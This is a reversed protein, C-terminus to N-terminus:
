RGSPTTISRRYSLLLASGHIVLGIAPGGCLAISTRLGVPADITLLGIVAVTAVVWGAMFVRHSGVALVAYGSLTLMAMVGAAVVLGAFLLGSPYFGAGYVVRLLAPGIGFALTAAVTTVVAVLILISGLRRAIRERHEVFHTIAVGQYANLTLLLPARTVVVVALVVSANAGLPDTSTLKLLIPFGAVLLASCGTALMANVSGRLFAFVSVSVPGILASGAGKWIVLGIWAFGGCALAWAQLARSGDLLVVALVCCFRVVGEVLILASYWGWRKTGAILGNVCHYMSYLGFAMAMAAVISVWQSGFLRSGWTPSTVLVLAAGVVAIVATGSIHSTGSRSTARASESSVVRTVEQQVGQLLGVIAFLFGWLVMFEGYREVGLIRGALVQLGWTLIAAVFSVSGLSALGRRSKRPRALTM